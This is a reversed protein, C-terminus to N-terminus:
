NKDLAREVLAQQEAKHRQLSGTAPSAAPKRTAKGDWAFRDRVFQWSGMNEPEEQCWVFKAKAYRKKLRQLESAPWPYLLETRVLAVSQDDGRAAKLDYYVKGSCVVVRKVKKPDDIAPDDLVARFGHETLDELSSGAEKQRLLSKTTMVILPKKDTDLAQARLLHYYSAACSPMAVRLNNEACLQLFRELRASSHEPGQGDYGHPLLLGVSSKQQWKAEGAALFQDIQIQAGNVFDGFQAEWLVLAEPRAVSYGYEFGLAAYESLLSDYLYLKAQDETLSSLPTWEDANQRDIITAFRSSFTGRRSDQGALRVPRGEMLLAGFALVEGTGWDIPGETIAKARRQLQPMVKPHVTFGEPPT